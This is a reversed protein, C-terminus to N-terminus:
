KNELKVLVTHIWGSGDSRAIHLWRTSNQMEPGIKYGDFHFRTGIAATRLVTTPDFSPRKRINALEVGITGFGLDEQILNELDDPPPPLDEAAKAPAEKAELSSLAPTLPASSRPAGELEFPKIETEAEAKIGSFNQSAGLNDLLDEFDDFNPLLPENTSALPTVVELQAKDLNSPLSEDLSTDDLEKLPDIETNGTVPVPSSVPLPPPPEVLSADENLFHFAETSTSISTPAALQPNAQESTNLDGLLREWPFAPGPNLKREIGDFRDHGLIFNNTAPIEWRRTLQRHLFLAAQYQEETLEQGSFGEYEISLTILNPNVKERSVEDLWDISTDPNNLVGNAWATDEDRVFQWIRGDRGIGYHASVYYDGEEGNFYRFTEDITGQMMHEVIAMPMYGDRGPWFNKVYHPEITMPHERITM